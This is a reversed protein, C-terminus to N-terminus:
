TINREFLLIGVIDEISRYAFKTIMKDILYFDTEYIDHKIYPKELKRMDKINFLCCGGSILGCRIDDGLFSYYSKKNRKVALLRAIVLSVNQSGRILNELTWPFIVDDDAVGYWWDGKLITDDELIWKMAHNGSIGGYKEKYEAPCYHIKLRGGAATPYLIKLEKEIGVCDQNGEDFIIHLDFDRYSQNLAAALQYYFGKINKGSTPFLIDIM